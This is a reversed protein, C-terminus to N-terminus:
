AAAGGVRAQVVQVADHGVAQQLHQFPAAQGIDANEIVGPLRQAQPVAEVGVAVAVLGHEQDELLM